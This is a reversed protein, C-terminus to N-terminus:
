WGGGVRLVLTGDEQRERYTVYQGSQWAEQEVVAAVYEQTLRNLEAIDGWCGGFNDFYVEGALDVVVPYTWGPLQVALGIVQRNYIKVSTRPEVTLGRDRAVQAFLDRDKIQLKLKILHSM